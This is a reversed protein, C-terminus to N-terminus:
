RSTPVWPGVYSQFLKSFKTRFPFSIVWCGCPESKNLSGFIFYCNIQAIQELLSASLNFIRKKYSSIWGARENLESHCFKHRRDFNFFWGAEELEWKKRVWDDGYSPWTIGPLSNPPDLFFAAAFSIWSIEDCHFDSKLRISILASKM